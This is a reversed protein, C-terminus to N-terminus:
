ASVGVRREGKELAVAQRIRLGTNKEFLLQASSHEPSGVLQCVLAFLQQASCGDMSDVGRGISEATPPREIFRCAAHVNIPHVFISIVAAVYEAPLQFRPIGIADLSGYMVSSLVQSVRSRDQGIWVVSGTLRDFDEKSIGLVDLQDKRGQQAIFGLIGLAVRVQLM